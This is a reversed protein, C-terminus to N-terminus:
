ENSEDDSDFEESVDEASGYDRRNRLEIIMLRQTTNQHPPKCLPPDM